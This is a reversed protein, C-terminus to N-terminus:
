FSSSLINYIEEYNNFEEIYNYVLDLSNFVKCFLLHELGIVNNNNFNGDKFLIQEIIYNNNFSSKYIQLEVKRKLNLTYDNNNNIYTLRSVFILGKM